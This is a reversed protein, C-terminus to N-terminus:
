LIAYFSDITKAVSGGQSFDMVNRAEATARYMIDEMEQKNPDRKNEKKFKKIENSKVKDYVALRFSLSQHKM